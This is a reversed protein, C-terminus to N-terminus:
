ATVESVEDIVINKEKSLVRLIHIKSVANDFLSKAKDAIPNIREIKHIIM